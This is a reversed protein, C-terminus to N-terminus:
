LDGGSQIDKQRIFLMCPPCAAIKTARGEHSFAGKRMTGQCRPCIIKGDSCAVKTGRNDYLSRMVFAKAVRKSTATKNVVVVPEVNPASYIGTSPSSIGESVPGKKTGGPLSEHKPAVFRAEGPNVIQLEEVPHRYSCGPWQVDVVGIAPFVAIVRGEYDATDLINRVADGVHFEHARAQYNMADARKNKPKM